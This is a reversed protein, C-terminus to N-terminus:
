ARRTAMRSTGTGHRLRDEAWRVSRAPDGFTFFHVGAIGLAPERARALAVEELLADPAEGALVNRALGRREKLARLSAGVGCRLAYGILKARKAPGAVGVRLSTAIGDERLARAFAILPKADFLFQSVLFVDLGTRVARDIKARLAERLVDGAIRPHGEPYCAFAVRRIGNRELLGTEILQLAADFPGAPRDRDGGLILAQRVEAEGAFERLMTELHRRSEVNRAVIHPVPELGARRLRAAAGVLVEAREDPLNAVFVETGSPLAAAAELAREDHATVEVSYGQLLDALAAKEEAKREHVALM